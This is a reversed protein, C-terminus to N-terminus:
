LLIADLMTSEFCDVGVSAQRGFVFFEALARIAGVPNALVAVFEAAQGLAVLVGFACVCNVKDWVRFDWSAAFCHVEEEDTCIAGGLGLWASNAVRDTAVL